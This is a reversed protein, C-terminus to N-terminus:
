EEMAKRLYYLLSKTGYIANTDGIPQQGEDPLAVFNAAYKELFKCAKEIAYKYGKKFIDYYLSLEEISSVDDPVADCLRDMMEQFKEENFTLESM